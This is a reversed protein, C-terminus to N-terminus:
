AGPSSHGAIVCVFPKKKQEETSALLRAILQNALALAPFDGVAKIHVFTLDAQEQVARACV